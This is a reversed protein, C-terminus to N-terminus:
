RGGWPCVGTDHCAGKYKTMERWVREAVVPDSGAAAVDLFADYM